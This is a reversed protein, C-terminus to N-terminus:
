RRNIMTTILVSMSEAFDLNLKELVDRTDYDVAGPVSLIAKAIDHPAQENYYVVYKGVDSEEVAPIRISVVKLGNAMYTLIKSPFSTANFSAEPNQTSLGIDCSQIFRKFEDGVLLGDHTVKAAGRLNSEEVVNILKNKQEDSGFGLIHVHYNPPLFKAVKAAAVAGGKRPDLTGAYVVHIKKDDSKQCLVPESKYTGNAVAYPKNNVNIEDNLFRTSFIFGDAIDFFMFEKKKTKSNRTVDAYIEEVEEILKFKKIRKAINVIQMYSLSHYVVLIDSDNLTCLLYRLLQLKLYARGIIRKLKGRRGLSHFTRLDTNKDLPTLGGAVFKHEKTGSATIIHVEKFQEALVTRIYDIKTDAAPFFERSEHSILANNYFGLYFIRDRM